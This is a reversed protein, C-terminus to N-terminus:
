MWMYVCCEEEGNQTRRLSDLLLRCLKKRQTNNLAIAARQVEMEGTRREAAAVVVAWRQLCLPSRQPPRQSHHYASSPPAARSQFWTCMHGCGQTYNSLDSPCICIRQRHLLCTCKAYLWFHVHIYMVACASKMYTYMSCVRVFYWKFLFTRSVSSLFFLMIICLASVVRIRQSVSNRIFACWKGASRRWFSYDKQLWLRCLAYPCWSSNIKTLYVFVITHKWNEKQQKSKIWCTMFHHFHM